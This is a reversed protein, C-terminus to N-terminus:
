FLSSNFFLIVKAHLSKPQISHCRGLCTTPRKATSAKDERAPWSKGPLCWRFLAGFCLCHPVTRAPHLRTSLLRYTWRTSGYMMTRCCSFWSAMTLVMRYIRSHVCKIFVIYMRKFLMYSRKCIPTTLQYHTYWPTTAPRLQAQVVGLYVVNHICLFCDM